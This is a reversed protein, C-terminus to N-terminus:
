AITSNPTMWRTKGMMRERIVQWRGAQSDVNTPISEIQLDESFASSDGSQALTLFSCAVNLFIGIMVVSPKLLDM